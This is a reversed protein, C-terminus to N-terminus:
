SSKNEILKKYEVIGQVIGQALLSRYDNRKLWAAETKNTCYGVEVLVAPMSTGILVHFPASRTGGDRTAFGKARATRIANKQIAKALDQSEETRVNLLMKALVNQLDGLSRDSVSNELTAVRSAESNRSFDLYYTEFGQVAPPGVFANMHISVFLDAGQENAMISRASLPIFVNSTRSYIVNFGKSKLLDGVRKGIDLVVASEVLGNHATGQDKGGHGIDVYVTRVSLGLQSALDVRPANRMRKNLEDESLSQALSVPDQEQAKSQTASAQSSVKSKAPATNQAKAPAPLPKTNKAPSVEKVPATPAKEKTAIQKPKADKSKAEKPQSTAHAANKDEIKKSPAPAPKVTKQTEATAVNKKVEEKKVKPELEARQASKSPTVQPLPLPAPKPIFTLNKTSEKAHSIALPLPKTDSDQKKIVNQAQSLPKEKNEAKAQTIEKPKVKPQAVQAM